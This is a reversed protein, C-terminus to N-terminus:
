GVEFAQAERKQHHVPVILHNKFISSKKQMICMMYLGNKWYVLIMSGKEEPGNGIECAGPSLV